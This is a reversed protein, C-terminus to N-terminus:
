MAAPNLQATKLVGHDKYTVLSLYCTVSFFFLSRTHHERGKKMYIRVRHSINWDCVSDLVFRYRM